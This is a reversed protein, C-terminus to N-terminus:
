WSAPQIAIVIQLLPRRFFRYVQNNDAFAIPRIGARELGHLVYRGLHSAGFLIVRDQNQGAIEAFARRERQRVAELSEAEIREWIPTLRNNFERM